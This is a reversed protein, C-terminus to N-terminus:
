DIFEQIAFEEPVTSKKKAYYSAGDLITVDEETFRDQNNHVIVLQFDVLGKIRHHLQALSSPICRFDECYYLGRKQTYAYEKDKIMKECAKTAREYTNAVVVIDLM